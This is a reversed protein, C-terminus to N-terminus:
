KRAKAEVLKKSHIEILKGLSDLAKKVAQVNQEAQSLSGNILSAQQPASSRGARSKANDIKIGLTKLETKANKLWIAKGQNIQEAPKIDKATDLKTQVKNCLVIFSQLAQENKAATPAIEKLQKISEGLIGKVEDAFQGFNVNARAKFAAATKVCDASRAKFEDLKVMLTKSDATATIMPDRHSKFLQFLQDQGTQEVAAVAKKFDWPQNGRWPQHATAAAAEQHAEQHMEGIYTAKATLEDFLKDDWAQQLKKTFDIVNNSLAKGEEHMGKLMKAYATEERTYIQGQRNIEAKAANLCTARLGAIARNASLVKKDVKDIDSACKTFLQNLAPALDLKTFPM